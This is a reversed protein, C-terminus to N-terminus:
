KGLCFQSFIQDLLSDPASDGIVEGLKEWATRIDIQIMDIPTFLEAAQVAEELSALAAKLLQIHRVNSVYTFDAAELSGSFFLDAIAKELSELGNETLASLEVVQAASALERVEALDLEQLLDSKNVIVILQRERLRKLLEKEEPLMARSGDLVLLVLDAEALAAKSREVGI